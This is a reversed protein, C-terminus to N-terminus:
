GHRSVEFREFDRDAPIGWVAWLERTDPRAIVAGSSEVFWPPTSRRCIAGPERLLALLTDHDVRGALMKGAVALRTESSERLDTAKLAERAQCAADLCHNTHVLPADTLATVAAHTPMAEVNYGRGRADLLMFNHGGALPATLIRDLAADVTDCRLVERVVFPWTVGVRGDAANLNNIGICIGRENMGIQGLCGSTSFVLAAPGDDPQIDLLAVHPTATDHMDWTQAFWPVGDSAATTPVIVATCDDEEPAAHGLARVADVFDTFGGVIVAEAPSIGAAEAMALMEVYLDPAYARHAPLMREALALIDDRTASRGAWSGNCALHVREDTYERISARLRAGHTAGRAAADGRLVTPILRGGSM